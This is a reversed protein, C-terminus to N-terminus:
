ANKCSGDCQLAFLFDIDEYSDVISVVGGATEIRAIEREQNSRLKGGEAKAEVFQVHPDFCPLVLIRDPVGARSPSTFKYAYGNHERARKLLRAEIQKERLKTTAM